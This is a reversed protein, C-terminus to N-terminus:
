RRHVDKEWAARFRKSKQNIALSLDNREKWEKMRRHAEEEIVQIMKVARDYANKTRKYPSWLKENYAPTRQGCPPNEGSKRCAIQNLSLGFKRLDYIDWPEYTTKRPKKKSDVKGARIRLSNLQEKWQKVKQSFAQELERESRSLDILLCVSVSDKVFVAGGDFTWSDWDDRFSWGMRFDLEIPENKREEILFRTGTDDTYLSFSQLNWKGCLNRQLAKAEKSFSNAEEESMGDIYVNKMSETEERPDRLGLQIETRATRDIRLGLSPIEWITHPKQRHAMIEKTFIDIVKKRDRKFKESRETAMRRDYGSIKM